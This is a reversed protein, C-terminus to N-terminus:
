AQAGPAYEDPVDLSFAFPQTPPRPGFKEAVQKPEDSCDFAAIWEAAEPPLEVTVPEPDDVPNGEADYEGGDLTVKGYGVFCPSLGADELALFVPCCSGEGPRGEKINQATVEIAVTKM